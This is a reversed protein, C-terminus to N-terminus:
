MITGALNYIPLLVAAAMFGVALGMIILLLPEVLTMLTDVSRTVEANYFETLEMLVKDLKGSKEGSAIMQTLTPPIVEAGRFADAITEGKRVNDRAKKLVEEYLTNGIIIAVTDLAQVIPIGGKILTGLNEAIRSIYIDKFIKGIIPFRIEFKDKYSRGRKTKVFRLLAFILGPILIFIFIINKSAFNSIAMIIKTPLPLEAEFEEFMEFMKPMVFTLMVIAVLVVGGLILAPYVMAGKIKSTLMYSRETHEALYELVKGLNGAVEGTKIMNIEFTSFTKPYRSLADSFSMGGEIFDAIESIQQLFLPNKIQEVLAQLAEVLPVDAVFLISLQRFFFVVDKTSIRQPLFRVQRKLGKKEEEVSELGTVILKHRQLIDLAAERKSAEIIGTERRGEPTRARYRFKM